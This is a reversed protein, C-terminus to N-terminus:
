YVTTANACPAIDKGDVRNGENQTIVYRAESGTDDVKHKTSTWYPAIVDVYVGATTRDDIKAEERVTSGSTGWEELCDAKELQNEVYEYEAQLALERARADSIESYHDDNVTASGRKISDATSCGAIGFTAVTGLARVIERRSEVPEM